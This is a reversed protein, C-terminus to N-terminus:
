RRSQSGHHEGLCRSLWQLDHLHWQGNQPASAAPLLSRTAAEADHVSPWGPQVVKVVTSEHLLESLSTAVVTGRMMRRQYGATSPGALPPVGSRTSGAVVNRSSHQAEHLSGAAGRPLAVAASGVGRAVLPPPPPPPPPPARTPM